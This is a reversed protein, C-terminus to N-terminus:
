ILSVKNWFLYVSGEHVEVDGVAGVCSGHGRIVNIAEMVELISQIAEEGGFVNDLEHVDFTIPLNKVAACCGSIM